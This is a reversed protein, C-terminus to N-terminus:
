SPRVVGDDLAVPGAAWSYIDSTTNNKKSDIMKGQCKM